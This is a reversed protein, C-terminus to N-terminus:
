VDKLIAEQRSTQVWANNKDNFRDKSKVYESVVTTIIIAKEDKSLPKKKSEKKIQDMIQNNDIFSTTINGKIFEPNNLVAKHFPITTEVGEIIFENLARNMRDIAEERTNGHCILKALLSDYHPSVEQGQHCSSCVRIGPGGPPLYNAITGTDPCFGDEPCEANIRCEIAWGDFKIDEQKYTLEAGAAIKVQEKVLDIGTIMETVGHEVQIRTNMEMFYFEGKSDILFEVTGAGEYKIASAVKLAAIGMEERLNNTLAVSPAEEVLKQHRRQISCDREGLHIVNGKRDTLIQFEVHRPEDIYKEIFVEKNKFASEAEAQCANFSAEFEEESTVIRMGKGGGGATAKIIIPYDMEEAIKKGEDVDKIAKDTGELVHVGASKILKKANIKDGMALIASYSPGIFKIQNQKCLRAFDANEALFGYGPHIADAKVRNAIKIIKKMNLYDSAKNGLKISKDAFKVALSKSDTSTYVQVTEIGLERCARIIRVAIEGRNSVLVKKFLKDKKIKTYDKEEEKGLGRTLLDLFSASSRDKVISRIKKEDVNPLRGSVQSAVIENFKKFDPDTLLQKSDELSIFHSKLINEIENFLYPAKRRATLVGKKVSYYMNEFHKLTKNVANVVRKKNTM